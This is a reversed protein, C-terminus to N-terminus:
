VVLVTPFKVAIVTRPGTSSFALKHFPKTRRCIPGLDGVILTPTAINTEQNHAGFAHKQRADIRTSVDKQPNALSRSMTAINELRELTPGEITDISTAENGRERTAYSCPM